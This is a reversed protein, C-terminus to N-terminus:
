IPLPNGMQSQFECQPVIWQCPFKAEAIRSAYRTACQQVSAHEIMNEEASCPSFVDIAYGKKVCENNPM